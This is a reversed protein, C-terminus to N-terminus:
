EGEELQKDLQDVEDIIDSAMEDLKEALHEMQDGAAAITLEFLAQSHEKFLEPNDQKWEKVRKIDLDEFDM